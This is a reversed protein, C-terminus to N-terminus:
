KYVNEIIICLNIHTNEPLSIPDGHGDVIRFTLSQLPEFMTRHMIVHKKEESTLGGDMQIAMQGLIQMRDKGFTSHMIEACHLYVIEVGPGDQLPVNIAYSILGIKPAQECIIPCPLTLNLVGSKPLYQSAADSDIWVIEKNSM